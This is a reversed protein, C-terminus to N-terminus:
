TRPPQCLPGILRVDKGALRSNAWRSRNSSWGPSAALIYRLSAQEVLGGDQNLCRELRCRGIFEAGAEIALSM